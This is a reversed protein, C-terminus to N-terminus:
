AKQDGHEVRRDTAPDDHQHVHHGARDYEPEGRDDRPPETEPTDPKGPKQSM